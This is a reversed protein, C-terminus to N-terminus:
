DDLESANDIALLMDSETDDGSSDPESSNQLDDPDEREDQLPDSGKSDGSDSDEPDFAQSTVGLGERTTEESDETPIREHQTNNTCPVEAHSHSFFHGIGFGCIYRMLM